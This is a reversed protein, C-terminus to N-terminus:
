VLDLVCCSSSLFNVREWSFGPCRPVTADANREKGWFMDICARQWTGPV